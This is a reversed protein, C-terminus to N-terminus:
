TEIHGAARLAALLANFEEGTVTEGAADAVSSAKPLYEAPLENYEYHPHDTVKLTVPYSIDSSKFFMGSIATGGAWRITFPHDNLSMSNNNGIVVGGNSERAECTYLEGNFTVDYLAGAQLSNQLKTWMGSSIKQEPIYVTDGGALQKTATWDAEPIEIEVNGNKDPAEGNVTLVAGQLQVRMMEEYMQLLQAYVDPSPDDPVGDACLISKECTVLAPTTTRLNGAFVGVACVTAGSIVPVPCTDGTFPEDHKKGDWLFRATKVEHENWEEDLHFCISYDSNGCVIGEVPSMAIKNKVQIDITPM